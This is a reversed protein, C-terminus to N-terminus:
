PTTYLVQLKDTASLNSVGYIWDTDIDFGLPALNPFNYFRFRGSNLITSNWTNYDSNWIQFEEGTKGTSIFTYDGSVKITSVNGAVEGQGIIPLSSNPTTIDFVFLEPGTPNSQRGFYLKNGIANVSLGDYIGPLDVSNIESIVDGTVDLVGLEKVNSDSALFVLRKTVNGIKQDRVVMDNVTRNLELGNGIETPLTPTSIDFIHFENGTTERVTIYLRQGYVYLRYGEPYSGFQDVNQLTVNAKLDPSSADTVDFVALQKTTTAVAVFAYTRGTSLDQMVDVANLKQSYTNIKLDYTGLPTPNSGVGSPVDYVIFSPTTNTTVYIKKHLVDIGTFQKGSAYTQMGVSQPNNSQWNGSPINLMCDGGRNIIESSNTLNTFLSTFTEPYNQVQWKVKAEVYKSCTSIDDVISEVFYCLGGAICSADAPDSPNASAALPSSVTSYFDQKADGRLDELKTKAKYLGENSTRSVLSWYQAIFNGGVAGVLVISILAFAIMLELTSFGNNKGNSKARM